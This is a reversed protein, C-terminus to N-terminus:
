EKVKLKDGIKLNKAKEKSLHNMQLLEEVKMNHKKAITWPNDGNKVTYFKTEGSLKEQSQVVPILKQIQAHKSPIKLTQGIRLNTNKLQNFKIIEEVSCHHKKAIKALFDGKVVQIEIFSPEQQKEITQSNDELVLEQQLIPAEIKAVDQENKQQMKLQEVALDIEDKMITPMPTQVDAIVIPPEQYTIQPEKDAKNKLASTFLVVLVGANILVAVLITDKRNM